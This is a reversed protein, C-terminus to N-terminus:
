NHRFTSRQLLPWGRPCGLLLGLVFIICHLCKTSGFFLGPEEVSTIRGLSVWYHFGLVTSVLLSFHFM